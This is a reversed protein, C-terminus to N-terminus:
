LISRMSSNSNKALSMKIQFIEVMKCARWKAEEAKKGEFLDDVTSYFLSEWRNFHQNDIPLDIHKTFPNGYYSREQLLISEWFAYMKELHSVWRGEIQANFIPSLVEDERVREYFADVMTKIDEKTLIDM